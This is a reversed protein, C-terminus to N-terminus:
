GELKILTRHCRQCNIQIASESIWEVDYHRIARRCDSDPCALGNAIAVRRGCNEDTQKM